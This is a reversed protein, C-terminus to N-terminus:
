KTFTRELERGTSVDFRVRYGSWSFADIEDGAVSAETWFDHAGDPAGLRWIESGDATCRYLNGEGHHDSSHDALVVRDSDGLVAITEEAV